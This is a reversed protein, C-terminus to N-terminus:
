NKLSKLWETLEHQGEHIKQFQPRLEAMKALYKENMASLWIANDLTAQDIRVYGFCAFTANIWEPVTPTLHDELWQQHAGCVSIVNDNDDIICCCGSKNKRLISKQGKKFGQAFRKNCNECEM